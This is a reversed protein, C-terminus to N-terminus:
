SVQGSRGASAPPGRRHPSRTLLRSNMLPGIPNANDPFGSHDEIVLVNAGSPVCITIRSKTQKTLKAANAAVTQAWPGTAEGFSFMSQGDGSPFNAKRVDYPSSRCVM